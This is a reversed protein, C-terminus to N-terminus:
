YTGLWVERNPADYKRKCFPFRLVHDKGSFWNRVGKKKLQYDKTSLFSLVYIKIICMKDVLTFRGRLYIMM